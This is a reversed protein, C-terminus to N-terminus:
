DGSITPPASIAPSSPVREITEVEFRVGAQRLAQTVAEAPASPDAGSLKIIIRYPQQQLTKSTINFSREATREDQKPDQKSEKTDSIQNNEDKDRQSVDQKPEEDNIENRVSPKSPSTEVSSGSPSEQEELTQNPSSPADFSSALKQGYPSSACAQLVMGFLAVWFCFFQGSSEKLFGMKKM